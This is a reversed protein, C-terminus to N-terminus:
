GRIASLKASFVIKDSNSDSSPISKVTSVTSPICGSTNEIRSPLFASCREASGFLTRLDLRWVALSSAPSASASRDPSVGSSMIGSSASFNAMSATTSGALRNSARNVAIAPDSHSGRSSSSSGSSDSSCITAGCSSPASVPSDALFGRRRRRLLLIVIASAIPKAAPSAPSVVSPATLSERGSNSSKASSVVIRSDASTGAEALFGRRRRLVLFFTSSDGASITNSAAESGVSATVSISDAEVNSSVSLASSTPSGSSAATLFLLRRRRM